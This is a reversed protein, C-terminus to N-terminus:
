VGLVIIVTNGITVIITYWCKRKVVESVQLCITNTYGIMVTSDYERNYLHLLLAIYRWIM